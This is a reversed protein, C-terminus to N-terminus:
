SVKMEEVVSELSFIDDFNYHSLIENWQLMDCTYNVNDHDSYTKLFHLRGCKEIKFKVDSSNILEASQPRFNEM